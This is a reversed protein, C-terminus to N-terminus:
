GVRRRVAASGWAEAALAEELTTVPGGAHEELAQDILHPIDTFGVRGALFLEVAVEDAGSLVAPYSGGAEGAQRALRLCPFRSDDPAAFTLTGVSALDLRPLDNAVREPYFLAYQIPTRMDPLGVQALISSDQFEVLSHIISQHHVLVEVQRFDVRFLWKVEFIEFGKNMLTASDITVKRGMRWTPHALAQAPTVRGLEERSLRAFPGGSATLLIREVAERPQGQLCQFIASLESDVPLLRAGSRAAVSTILGGAAVLPEKNALAVDRGAELARVVSALGAGGSIAAVVLDAEARRVLEVAAAAGGLVQVGPLAAAARQAAGEDALACWRAGFQQAQEVLLGDQAGAALGVVELRDPHAAVIDLTQRGISGTSGLILLRTRSM